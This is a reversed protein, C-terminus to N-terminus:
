PDSGSISPSAWYLALVVGQPKANMCPTLPLMLVTRGNQSNKDDCHIKRDRLLEYKAAVLGGESQACKTM